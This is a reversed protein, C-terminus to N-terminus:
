WICCGASISCRGPSYPSGVPRLRACSPPTGLTSSSFLPPWAVAGRTGSRRPARPRCDRSAPRRDGDERTLIRQGSPKAGRRQRRRVGRYLIAPLVAPTTVEKSPLADCNRRYWRTARLRVFFLALCTPAQGASQTFGVNSGGPAFYDELSSSQLSKRYAFACAHRAPIDWLSQRANCILPTM